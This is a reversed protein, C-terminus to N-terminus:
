AEAATLVLDVADRYRRWRETEGVLRRRGEATLQYYRARRNNESVGWESEVLRRKELRHLAPYLAGEEVLIEEGTRRKIWEAVAYGHLPGWSLSKMVLVDLTGRLLDLGSESM